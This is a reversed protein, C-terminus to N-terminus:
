KRWVNEEHHFGLSRFLENSATNKANVRAYAGDLDLQRLAFQGIGQRRCHERVFIGVEGDLKRYVWACLEHDRQVFFSSPYEGAHQEWYRKHEEYTPLTEASTGPINVHEAAYREELIKYLFRLHAESKLNVQILKM